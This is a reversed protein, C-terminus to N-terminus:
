TKVESNQDVLKMQEELVKQLFHIILLYVSPFVFKESMM